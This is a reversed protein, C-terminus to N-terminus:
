ECGALMVNPIAQALIVFFCLGGLVTGGLAMARKRSPELRRWQNGCIGAALATVGLSLATILYLVVKGKGLCALSVLAYTAELNLFWVVPSLLIWVWLVSDSTM